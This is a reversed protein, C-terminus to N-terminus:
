AAGETTQTRRVLAARRSEAASIDSRCKRCKFCRCGVDYTSRIGHQLTDVRALRAARSRRVRENQYTRCPECRCKHTAYGAYTGHQIDPTTV